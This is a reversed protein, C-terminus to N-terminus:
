EPPPFRRRLLHIAIITPIALLALLGLPTAFTM